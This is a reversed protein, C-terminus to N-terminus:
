KSGGNIEVQNDRERRWSAVIEQDVLDNIRTVDEIQTGFYQDILQAIQEVCENMRYNDSGDLPIKFTIETTEIKRQM